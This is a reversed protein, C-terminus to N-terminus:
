LELRQEMSPETVERLALVKLYPMLHVPPSVEFEPAISGGWAGLTPWEAAIRLSKALYDANLVNDDDVFVLVEGRSKSIGRLRAYALGLTEERIIRGGPHWAIDFRAALPETCANDILLLEWESFPLTQNRCGLLVRNLYDMRPNHTCLSVSIKMPGAGGRTSLPELNATPKNVVRRILTGLSECVATLVTRRMFSAPHANSGDEHRDSDERLNKQITEPRNDLMYTIGAELETELPGM